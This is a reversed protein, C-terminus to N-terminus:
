KNELCINPLEKVLCKSPITNIVAMVLWLVMCALMFHVNRSPNVGVRISTAAGSLQNERWM